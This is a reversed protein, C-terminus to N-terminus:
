RLESLMWRVGDRSSGMGSADIGSLRESAARGEQNGGIPCEVRVDQDM